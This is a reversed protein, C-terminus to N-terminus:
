LLIDNIFLWQWKLGYLMLTVTLSVLMVAKIYNNGYYADSVMFCSSM